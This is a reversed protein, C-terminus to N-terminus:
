PGIIFTRSREDLDMAIDRGDREDSEADVGSESLSLSLLIPRPYVGRFDDTPKLVPKVGPPELPLELGFELGNLRFPDLCPEFKDSLLLSSEFELIGVRLSGDVDVGSLGLAVFIPEFGCDPEALGAGELRLRLPDLM